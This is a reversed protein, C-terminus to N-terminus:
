EALPISVDVAMGPLLPVRGTSVDVPQRVQVVIWIAGSAPDVKGTTGLIEGLWTYETGGVVARVEAASQVGRPEFIWRLDVRGVDDGCIAAEIEFADTGHATALSQGVSVYQGLSATEEIVMVDFPLVVSTRELHLEAAALQAKASEVVAEAQRIRPKGLISPVDSDAGSEYLPRQTDRPGTAARELDLRAEAVEVAARAQRVALEYSSPDIQAIRENAPILGGVHLQSHLYVVRGAVEPMIEVRVKPRVTGQGHITAAVDVPGSTARAAEAVPSEAAAKQPPKRLMALFVVCVVIAILVFLVFAIRQGPRGHDRRGKWGQTTEM